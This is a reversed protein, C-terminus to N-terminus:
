SSQVVVVANDDDFDVDIVGEIEEGSQFRLFDYGGNGRKEVILAGGGFVNEGGVINEDAGVGYLDTSEELFDSM